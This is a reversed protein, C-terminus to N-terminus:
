VEGDFSAPDGRKAGPPRNRKGFFYEALLLVFGLALLGVVWLLSGPDDIVVYALLVVNGAIGM